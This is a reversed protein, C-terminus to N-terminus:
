FKLYFRGDETKSLVNRNLMAQTIAKFKDHNIIGAESLTIATSESVAVSPFFAM